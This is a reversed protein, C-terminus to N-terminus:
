FPLGVAIHIVYDRESPRPDPNIAGDIRVPGIPLSLRLGGGVGYRLNALGFNQVNTGVNGADVFLAGKVARFLPFRLEANFVNRYEGGAPNGLATQPGLESQRFSRVTSEGGNYFREQVPLPEDDLPWILGTAAGLSLTWREAVPLPLHWSTRATLRHFALDGGLAESAHEFRIVDRRGSTPYVPSDLSDHSLEVFVRGLRFEEVTNAAALPDLDRGDRRAFSYGVRAQTHAFLERTLATNVGRSLDTFSPEERERIFGTATLSTDTGFLEPETWTTDAGLSKTSIKGGARLRQGRGFLNNDAYYAAARIREYSGWGALFSIERAEAEEVVVTLTVTGDSELEREVAVKTFLGSVYLDQITQDVRGGHFWEGRRVRIKGAIVSEATRENGVIRIDGIRARPGREGVFRVRVRKNERDIRVDSRIVPEPFGADELQRRLRIRLTRLTLTDFPKGEVEDRALRALEEPAGLQPAIEVRAVVYRTGEVIRIRVRAETAGAAREILPGEVEVELFGSAEYRGRISGAFARLDAEVFYPDGLGLLGSKTRSWLELLGETPLSENGEIVLEPITVLPGEVIRFVVKPKPEREIVHEVRVDPYGLSRYHDALDQAADVIAYTRRPDRRFDILLDEIVRLLRFSPLSSGDFAVDVDAEQKEERAQEDQEPTTTEHEPLGTCGGALLAVALALGRPNM